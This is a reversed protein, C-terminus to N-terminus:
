PRPWPHQRRSYPIKDGYLKRVAEANVNISASSKQDIFSKFLDPSRELTSSKDSEKALDDLDKIDSKALEKHADDVVEHIGVPPIRGSDIYPKVVKGLQAMQDLAAHADQLKIKAEGVGSFVGMLGLAAQVENSDIRGASGREFADGIAKGVASPLAFGVGTVAEYATEAGAILKDSTTANVDSFAKTTTQIQDWTLGLNDKVNQFLTDPPKQGWRSQRVEATSPRVPEQIKDLLDLMPRIRGKVYNLQDEKNLKDLRQSVEDLQGLDGNSGSNRPHSNVYDAIHPNNRVIDGALAATHQAEVGDVDGYIATSPVGTAKELEMARAAQDPDFDNIAGKNLQRRRTRDGVM